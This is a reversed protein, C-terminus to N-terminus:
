QRYHVTPLRLDVLRVCLILLGPTDNFEVVHYAPLLIDLVNNQRYPIAYHQDPLYILRKSAPQM